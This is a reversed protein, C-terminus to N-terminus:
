LPQLFCSKVSAPMRNIEISKGASKPYSQWVNEYNRTGQLCAQFKITKRPKGSAFLGLDKPGDQNITSFGALRLFRGCGRILLGEFPLALAFTFLILHTIINHCMTGALTFHRIVVPRCRRRFSLAFHCPFLLFCRDLRLLFDPLIFSRAARAAKKESTRRRNAPERIGNKAVNQKPRLREAPGHLALKQQYLLILHHTMAGM